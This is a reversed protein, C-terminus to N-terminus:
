ILLLTNFLQLSFVHASLPWKEYMRGTFHCTEQKVERSIKAGQKGWSFNEHNYKTIHNKSSPWKLRSSTVFPYFFFKSIKRAQHSFEFYILAMRSKREYNKFSVGWHGLLTLHNKTQHPSQYQYFFFNSVLLNVLAIPMALIFMFYFIYTSDEFPVLPFKTGASNKNLADIVTQTYEIEGSTMAFVKMFAKM